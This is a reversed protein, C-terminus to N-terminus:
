TAPTLAVGGPFFRQVAARPMPDARLDRHGFALTREGMCEFVLVDLGGRRALDVAPDLWGASCGIRFDGPTDM